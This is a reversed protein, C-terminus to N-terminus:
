VSSPVVIRRFAPFYEELPMASCRALSYGEAQVTEWSPWDTIGTMLVLSSWETLGTRFSLAKSPIEMQMAKTGCCVSVSSKVLEM